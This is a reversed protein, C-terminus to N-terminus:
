KVYEFVKIVRNVGSINRAINVAENAEQQSVLGLLFVEANETVVKINLADLHDSSFLATKIKSTLWIDNSKTAISIENGIRVQNHIQQVRNVSKLIKIAEDRLYTNPVQGVLLISGNMSVIQLNANENIGQHKALRAYGTLEIQQDDIQAGVTRNDSAMTAGGAVGVVAAAICGQLTTAAILCVSFRALKHV